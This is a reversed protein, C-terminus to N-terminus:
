PARRRVLPLMRALVEDRDIFHHKLAAAVHLLLLAALALNLSVHVTGLLQGLAQDKAVLDPLPLVGWWV